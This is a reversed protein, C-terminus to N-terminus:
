YRNSRHYSSSDLVFPRFDLTNGRLENTRIKAPPLQLNLSPLSAAVLYVFVFAAAGGM